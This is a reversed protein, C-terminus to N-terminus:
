FDTLPNVVKQYIKRIAAYIQYDHLSLRNQIEALTLDQSFYKLIQVEIQNLLNIKIEQSVLYRALEPHLNAGGRLIIKLSAVIKSIPHSAILYRDVGSSLFLDIMEPADDALVVILHPIQIRAQIVNLNKLQAKEHVEYLVLNPIYQEIHSQASLHDTYSLMDPQYGLQLFALDLNSSLPPPYPQVLLVPAPLFSAM